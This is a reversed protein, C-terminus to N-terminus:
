SKAITYLHHPWFAIQPYSNLSINSFVYSNLHNTVDQFTILKLLYGLIPTQKWHVSIPIFCLCSCLDCFFPIILCWGRRCLIALCEKSNKVFLNFMLIYCRSGAALKPSLSLLTSFMFGTLNLSHCVRCTLHVLTNLM